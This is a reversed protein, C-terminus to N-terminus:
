GDLLGPSKTGVSGPAPLEQVEGLEYASSVRRGDDFCDFPEMACRQCERSPLMAAFGPPIKQELLAISGKSYQQLLACPYVNLGQALQDAVSSKFQLGSLRGGSCTCKKTCQPIHVQFL